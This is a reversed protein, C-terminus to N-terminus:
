NGRMNTPCTRPSWDTAADWSRIASYGDPSIADRHCRQRLQAGFNGPSTNFRNYDETSWLFDQNYGTQTTFTLSPTITYDANLEIVDNKALYRPNLASEIVRLNQSQTSSVYPDVYPNLEGAVGLAIAYPLSFGYPVEFADPSYLSTAQCGQILYDDDLEM